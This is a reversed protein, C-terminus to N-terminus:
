GLYYPQIEQQSNTANLTWVRTESIVKIRIYRRHLVFHVVYLDHIIGKNGLVFSNCNLYLICVWLIAILWYLNHTQTNIYAISQWYTKKLDCKRLVFIIFKNRPLFFKWPCKCWIKWDGRSCNGCWSHATYSGDRFFPFFCFPM